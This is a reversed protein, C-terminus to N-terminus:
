EASLTKKASLVGEPTLILASDGGTWRNLLIEGEQLLNYCANKDRYHVAGCVPCRWYREGLELEKNIHYCGCCRKSSPFFRDVKVLVKGLDKLKYALMTRFMGFGNDHVSKGFMLMRSLDSLNLDEVIVADYADAVKRSLKHLFDKRRNSAKEHLAGIRKRQKWYNSSGYEMRSLKRQERAIRSELNRYWHIEEPSISNEGSASVLLEPMSYDFAEIVSFVKLPEKRNEEVAFVLSAFFKGSATEKVTVHKLVWGDPISRHLIIRVPGLKPLKIYSEADGKPIIEINGNVSNTTYSRRDKGKARFKPVKGKPFLKRCAQNLDLQVNALSLSDVEKLFGYDKKLHAPTTNLLRGKNDKEYSIREELLHNWVFRNCGFTKWILIKQDADPKLRFEMCKSVIVKELGISSESHLCISKPVSCEDM